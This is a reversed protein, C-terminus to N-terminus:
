FEDKVIVERGAYHGCNNCVTHPRGPSSCRECERVAVHPAKMAARGKRARSKSCRRKPVAM